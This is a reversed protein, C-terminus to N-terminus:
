WITELSALFYPVYQRIVQPSAYKRHNSCHLSYKNSEHPLALHSTIKINLGKIRNGERVWGLPDWNEHIWQTTMKDEVYIVVWSKSHFFKWSKEQHKYLHNLVEHMWYSAEGDALIIVAAPSLLNDQNYPIDLQAPLSHVKQSFFWLLNRFYIINYVSHTHTHM